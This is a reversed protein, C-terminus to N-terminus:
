RCAVTYLARGDRLRLVDNTVLRRLTDGARPGSFHFEGMHCVDFVGVSTRTARHEDLIGGPYSVPMSWGGFEVMKAGLRRHAEHLPTRRAPVGSTAPMSM